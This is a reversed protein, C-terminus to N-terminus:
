NRFSVPPEGIVGGAEPAGSSELKVRERGTAPDLFGFRNSAMRIEREIRRQEAMDATPSYSMKTV